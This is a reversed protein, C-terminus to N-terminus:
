ERILIMLVPAQSEFLSTHHTHTLCAVLVALTGLGRENRTEAGEVDEDLGGRGIYYIGYHMSSFYFIVGIVILPAIVAVVRNFCGACSDVLDCRRLVAALADASEGVELLVGRAVRM